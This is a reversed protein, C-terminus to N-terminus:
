HLDAHSARTLRGLLAIVGLPLASCVVCLSIGDSGKERVVFGAERKSWPPGVLAGATARLTVNGMDVEQERAWDLETVNTFGIKRALAAASPSGVVPIDPRREFLAKLTPKHCHDDISMTLLIMDTEKAVADLDVPADKGYVRKKGEYVFDLGGFTLSGVLWPDVLLRTDSQDM